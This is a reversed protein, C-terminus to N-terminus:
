TNTFAEKCSIEGSGVGGDDGADAVWAVRRGLGKSIKGFAVPAIEDGDLDIAGGFGVRFSSCLKQLRGVIDLM